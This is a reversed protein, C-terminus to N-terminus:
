VEALETTEIEDKNENLFVVLENVTDFSEELFNIYQFAKVYFQMDDSVAPISDWFGDNNSVLHILKEIADRLKEPLKQPNIVPLDNSIDEDLNANDDRSGFWTKKKEEQEFVVEAICGLVIVVAFPNFFQVWWALNVWVLYFPLDQPISSITWGWLEPLWLFALVGFYVKKTAMQKTDDTVIQWTAYLVLMVMVFFILRPMSPYISGRLANVVMVAVLCKMAFPLQNFMQKVFIDWAGFRAVDWVLSISIGDISAAKKDTFHSMTMCRFRESGIFLACFLALLVALLFINTLVTGM